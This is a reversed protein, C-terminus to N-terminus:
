HDADQIPRSRVELMGDPASLQKSAKRVAGASRHQVNRDHDATHWERPQDHGLLAIPLRERALISLGQRKKGILGGHRDLVRTTVLRGGALQRLDFSEALDRVSQDTLEVQRPKEDSHGLPQALEEVRAGHEGEQRRRLAVVELHPGRGALPSPLV